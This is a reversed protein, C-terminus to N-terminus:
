TCKELWCHVTTSMDVVAASLWPFPVFTLRVTFLREGHATFNFLPPLEKGNLLRTNPDRLEDFFNHACARLPTLRASPTYELLKSVLQIAEPPTRARFVQSGRVPYTLGSGWAARVDAWLSSTLPWDM